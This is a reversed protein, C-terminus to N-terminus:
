VVAAAEITSVMAEAIRLAKAREVKCEDFLLNLRM